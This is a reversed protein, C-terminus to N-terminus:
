QQEDPGPVMPFKDQEQRSVFTRHDGGPVSVEDLGKWDTPRSVARGESARKLRNRAEKLEGLQKVYAKGIKDFNSHLKSLNEKARAATSRINEERRFAEELAKVYPSADSDLSIGKRSFLDKVQIVFSQPAGTLRALSEIEDAISPPLQADDYHNKM